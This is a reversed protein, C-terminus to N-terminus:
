TTVHTRRDASLWDQLAATVAAAGPADGGQAAPHLIERSRNTLQEDITVPSPVHDVAPDENPLQKSPVLCNGVLLTRGPQGPAVSLSSWV